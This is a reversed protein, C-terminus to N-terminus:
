DGEQYVDWDQSELWDVIVAAIETESNKDM